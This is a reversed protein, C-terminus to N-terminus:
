FWKEDLSYGGAGTFSLALLGTFVVIDQLLKIVSMPQTADFGPASVMVIAGLMIIMLGLSDWRTLTGTLLGLGGLLEGLAIVLALWWAGGLMMKAFGDLGPGLIGTLKGFGALLFLLGLGLRLFLLGLDENQKM